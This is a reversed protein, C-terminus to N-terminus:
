LVKGFLYSLPSKSCISAWQHLTLTLTVMFNGHSPNDTMNYTSRGLRPSSIRLEESSIKLSFSMRCGKHGLIQGQWM